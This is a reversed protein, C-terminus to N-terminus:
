GGGVITVIEIQDKNKLKIKGWNKKNCILSNYEIVLLQSNFNFYKIIELITLDSITSYKEGNLYFYKINEM